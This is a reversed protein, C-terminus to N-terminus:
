PESPPVQNMVAVDAAHTWYCDHVSVFTLGKRRCLPPSRFPLSGVPGGRLACGPGTSLGRLTWPLGGEELGRGFM